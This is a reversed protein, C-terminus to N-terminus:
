ALHREMYEQVAKILVGSRNLGKSKSFRDTKELVSAPFTVSIRKKGEYSKMTREDLPIPIIEGESNKIDEHSSPERVFQKEAHAMWGALADAANCYAEEFTNGFTVCGPLDPFEVEVANDSKTFIAYYFKM